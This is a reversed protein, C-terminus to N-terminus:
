EPPFRGQKGSRKHKQRLVAKKRDLEENSRRWIWGAILSGVGVPLSIMCVLTSWAWVQGRVEIGASWGTQAMRTIAYTLAAVVILAGVVM